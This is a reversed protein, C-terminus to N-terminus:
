GVYVWSRYIQEQFYRGRKFADDATLWTRLRTSRIDSSSPHGEAGTMVRYAAISAHITQDHLFSESLTYPRGAIRSSYQRYEYEAKISLFITIFNSSSDIFLRM